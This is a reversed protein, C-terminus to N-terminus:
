KEDGLSFEGGANEQEKKEKQSIACFRRRKISLYKNHFTNSRLFLNMKLVQTM